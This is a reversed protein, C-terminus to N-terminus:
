REVLEATARNEVGARIWRLEVRDGPQQKKLLDNFRGLNSIDEGALQTLVDGARLGAKEAPSGPVVGDLRLGPGKFAFDPVAGLSVRRSGGSGPGPAPTTGPALAVATLRKDTSALYRVAEAAVTAVRAMGAADVKDPTDSPRHYDFAAGTFIQVGPVGADIFVRQDSSESAGPVSRTPIGTVASIGRFVFPWERASETALISVPQEGLRGVTDMNVIGVIGTMPVPRPNAVYHRSGLLGAEEGSFAIFVVTRPPTPAAALTHALEILVAVGSANDDAGPHLQGAADARAGPWGFGLHDYHASVLAAEGDFRPDSGPLVGIVNRLRRESNDVGGRATFAQFYTGDDGGPQLGAAAFQEGIYEAAAELGASGFGRGEREPAALFDVHAELRAASYTAPPATLAARKAPVPLAVREGDRGFGVLLPSDTAPWEGKGVNEAEAGRFVLWSYKGYHPLKRALGPLAEPLSASVWGVALKADQPHRRTLVHAHGARPWAEDGVAVSAEDVALGTRPDSAFLRTALRNQRGLLWASRDAPLEELERDTVVTIKNAPNKWADLVERWAATEAAPETPLVAIVEAAGFLQGISPATERPDLVRLVDFEPDVALSQPEAATEIRFPTAPGRSPVTAVVVGERTTVAVPVEVEFPAAQRQRLVGTVAYGGGKGEVQVDALALDAAGTRNVWEDFFRGLDRGSVQEFTARLDAFSARKGRNDEYFTALAKRFLDDGLQRRLMHFGMLTKGYGVAETAASHRSRFERLPFDASVAAFDRYKKLVDRRYEAGQGEVEKM